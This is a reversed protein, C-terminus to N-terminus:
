RNLFFIVLLTVIIFVVGAAILWFTSEKKGAGAARASLADARSLTQAKLDLLKNIQKEFDRATDNNPDIIFVRQIETLAHSFQGQQVYDHAHQFYQNKLWSLAATREQDSAQTATRVPAPMDAPRANPQEIARDVIGPLSELIDTRQDDTLFGNETLELLQEVQREFALVYVNQPQVSKVSRVHRLAAAYEGRGALASADQLQGALSAGAEGNSIQADSM